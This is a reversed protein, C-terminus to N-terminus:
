STCANSTMVTGKYVDEWYLAMEEIILNERTQENNCLNAKDQTHTQTRTSLFVTVHRVNRVGDFM